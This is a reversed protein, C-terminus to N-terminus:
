NHAILTVGCYNTSCNAKFELYEPNFELINITDTHLYRSKHLRLYSYAYWLFYTETELIIATYIKTYKEYQKIKLIIIIFVTKIM